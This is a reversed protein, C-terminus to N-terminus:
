RSSLATSINLAHHKNAGIEAGLFAQALRLGSGAHLRPRPDHTSHM